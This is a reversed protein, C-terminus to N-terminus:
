VVIPGFSRPEEGLEETKDFIFNLVLVLSIVRHDETKNRKTIM